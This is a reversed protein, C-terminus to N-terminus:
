VHMSHKTSALASCAQLAITTAPTQGRTRRDRELAMSYSREKHQYRYLACAIGLAKEWEWNEIGQRSSARRV